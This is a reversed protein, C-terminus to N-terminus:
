VTLLFLPCKPPLIEVEAGDLSQLFLCLIVILFWKLLLLSLAEWWLWQSTTALFLWISRSLLMRSRCVVSGYQPFSCLHVGNLFKEGSVKLKYFIFLFVSFVSQFLGQFPGERSGCDRVSLLVYSETGERFFFGPSLPCFLWLWELSIIKLLLCHNVLISSLLSFSYFMALSM